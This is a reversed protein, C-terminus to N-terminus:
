FEFGCSKLIDSYWGKQNNKLHHHQPANLTESYSKFQNENMDQTDLFPKHNNLNWKGSPYHVTPFEQLM